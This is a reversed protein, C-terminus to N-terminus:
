RSESESGHPSPEPLDDSTGNRNSIIKNLEEVHGLASHDQRLISAIERLDTDKKTTVIVESERPELRLLKDLRTRAAIVIAPRPDKLLQKYTRVAIATQDVLDEEFDKRLFAKARTIYSEVARFKVDWRKKCDRKIESKLYGDALLKAVHLVRELMDKNSSHIGRTPIKKKKVRISKVTKM